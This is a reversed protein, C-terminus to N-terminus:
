EIKWFPRDGGAWLYAHKKIRWDSNARAFWFGEGSCPGDRGALCAETYVLAEQGHKGYAIKSFGIVLLQDKGGAEFQRLAASDVFGYFPFGFAAADFTQLTQEWSSNASPSTLDRELSAGVGPLSRTFQGYPEHRPVRPTTIAASTIQQDYIAFRAPGDHDLIMKLAKRCIVADTAEGASAMGPAVLAAM